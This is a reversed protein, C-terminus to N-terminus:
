VKIGYRSLESVYLEDQPTNVSVVDNSSDSKPFKYVGRSVQNNTILWIPFAVKFRKDEIRKEVLKDHIIKVDSLAINGDVVLEPFLLEVFHVYKKQGPSLDTYNKM